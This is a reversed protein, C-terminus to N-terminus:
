CQPPFKVKKLQHMFAVYKLESQAFEALPHLLKALKAKRKKAKRKKEKKREREEDELEADHKKAKRDKKKREKEEREEAAATVVSKMPPVPMPDPLGREEIAAFANRSFAVSDHSFLVCGCM